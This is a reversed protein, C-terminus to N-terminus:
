LTDLTITFSLVARHYVSWPDPAILKSETETKFLVVSLANGGLTRDTYVQAVITDIYGNFTDGFDDAGDDEALVAMKVTLQGSSRGGTMLEHIEDGNVIQVQPFDTSDSNELPLLGPTLRKSLGTFTLDYLYNLIDKRKSM